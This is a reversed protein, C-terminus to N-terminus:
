CTPEEERFKIVKRILHLVAQVTLVCFVFLIFIKTITPWVSNMASGSRQMYWEGGPTRVARVTM